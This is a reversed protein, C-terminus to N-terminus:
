LDVKGYLSGFMWVWEGGSVARKKESNNNVHTSKYRCHTIKYYM